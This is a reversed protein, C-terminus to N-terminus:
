RSLRTVLDSVRTSFETLGGWFAEARSESAPDLRSIDRSIVAAGEYDLSFVRYTAQLAKKALPLLDTSGRVDFVELLSSPKAEREILRQIGWVVELVIPSHTSLVVRIGHRLLELVLLMVVEIGRPHLGMEPEEIVVWGAGAAYRKLPLVNYLGFLLPMFERQGTSWAPFQIADSRSSVILELKTGPGRKGLGVRAGHLLSNGILRILTPRLRKPDPFLDRGKQLSLSRYLADSFLRVVVPTRQDFLDFPRPWGESLVLARQAPVYFLPNLNFIPEGTAGELRAPAGKWELSSAHRWSRGMGEGLYLEYLERKGGWRLGASRLRWAIEDGDLAAKLLQLVLSKGTAQPGVLVTVDGFEIRARRIQAFNRVELVDPTRAVIRKYCESM